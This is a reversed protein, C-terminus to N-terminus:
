GNIADGFLLKENQLRTICNPCIEIDKIPYIWSNAHKTDTADILWIDGYKITLLLISNDDYYRRVCEVYRRFLGHKRNCNAPYYKCQFYLLEIDM